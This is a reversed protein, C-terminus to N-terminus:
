IYIYKLIYISFLSYIIGPIDKISTIPKVLTRTKCRLEMNGGIWIYEVQVKNGQPLKLYNDLALYNKGQSAFDIELSMAVSM